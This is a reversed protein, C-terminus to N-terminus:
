TTVPYWTRSGKAFLTHVWDSTLKKDVPVFHDATDSPEFPGAIAGIGSNLAALGAGAGIIQVFSRRDM